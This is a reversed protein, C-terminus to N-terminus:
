ILSDLSVLRRNSPQLPMWWVRDGFQALPRVARRGMNREYATKGDRGVSFRRHMSTAYSVIWTLLDHDAPVEVGAASEVALEISRVHGKVVNVSSEAAGNSHPDGETSREQVADGTYLGVEGGPAICSHFALQRVSVGSQPM